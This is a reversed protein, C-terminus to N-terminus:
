NHKKAMLLDNFSVPISMLNLSIVIFIVPHILQDKFFSFHPKFDLFQYKCFYLKALESGGPKPSRTVDDLAEHRGTEQPHDRQNSDSFSGREKETKVDFLTITM